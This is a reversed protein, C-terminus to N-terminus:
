TLIGWLTEGRALLGRGMGSTLARERFGARVHAVTVRFGDRIHRLLEGTASFPGWVAWYPTFKTLFARFCASNTPRTPGLQYTKSCHSVRM